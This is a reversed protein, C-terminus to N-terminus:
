GPYTTTGEYALPRQYDFQREEFRGPLLRYLTLYGSPGDEAWVTLRYTGPPLDDGLPIALNYGSDVYGDPTSLVPAKEGGAPHVDYVRETVTFGPLPGLHVGQDVELRVRVRTRRASGYPVHLRALLIEEAAGQKTVEFSLGGEGVWAAMRTTYGADGAGAHNIMWQAGGTDRIHIQHRGVPIRPLRLEGRGSALMGRYLSRGDVLIEVSRPKSPRGLYLLVPEVEAIGPLDRLDLTVERNAALERYTVALSEPRLPQGPDRPLLLVRGRWNGLPRFDEWKYQAALLLADDEPPRHQLRLPFTRLAQVLAREGNPRLRFWLPRYDEERLTLDFHEPVRLVYALDPPRTYAAVLALPEGYFRIRAIGDPVSFFYRSPETVALEASPTTLTDLLSPVPSVGLRGESVPSGAANLMQYRVETATGSDPRLAARLDVRVPTSRGPLHDLEYEVPSDTTTQYIRLTIPQPTIERLGDPTPLFARVVLPVPALVEILGGDLQMEVSTSEPALYAEIERRQHLGRGYWRLTVPESGPWAGTIDTLGFELRVRRADAPLPLIGSRGPGTYVGQPLPPALVPEGAEERWVYLVRTQYDPGEVGAPGLPRWRHRLLNRKEAERLLDPGYVMGRAMDNKQQESLRQWLYPLRHEPLTEQEYIRVMAEQLVPDARALRIRLRAGREAEALPILTLQADTPVTTPTNFFSRTTLAGTDPDRYASVQTRQSYTHSRLQRGEADALQVEFAYQWVVESDATLARAVAANSLVRVLLGQGSLPFELWTDERLRYATSPRVGELRVKTDGRWTPISVTDQLRQWAGWALAVLLSLTLLRGLLRM